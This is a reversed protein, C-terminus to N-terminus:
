LKSMRKSSLLRAMKSELNEMNTEMRQMKDIMNSLIKALLAYNKELEIETLSRPISMGTVVDKVVRNSISAHKKNRKPFRLKM